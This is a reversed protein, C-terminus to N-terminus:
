NIIADDSKAKRKNRTPVEMRDVRVRLEEEKGVSKTTSSELWWMRRSTNRISKRLVLETKLCIQLSRMTQLSVKLLSLVRVERRRRIASIKTVKKKVWIVKWVMSEGKVITRKV